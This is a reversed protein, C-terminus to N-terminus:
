LKEVVKKTKSGNLLTVQAQAEGGSAKPVVRIAQFGPNAKVAEDVADALSKKAKSMAEAQSKADKIDDPDTLKDSSKIKGTAYDVIVEDIEAGKSVFVSLQYGNDEDVEYQASVAKGGQEADKIGQALPVKAKPMEKILKPMQKGYEYDSDALAVSTTLALLGAALAAAVFSRTM